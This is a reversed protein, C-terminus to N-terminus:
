ACIIFLYPSLPDGQRIGRSPIIPGVIQNGHTINYSVTSVCVLILHVWWDNYGMKKLMVELFGWEIRDYAKSMDLKIAMHGGKGRRKRKLYHMVEYSVMVNDSILRGTMFTSQNESIVSELTKKLRNAVVKTIIKMLVNCLSISRLDNILVPCKEKPILVVNINNLTSNLMGTSFFEQVLRIVDEGVIKWHKQYFSPTMGDPGPAKDPNMQFLSAKVEEAAIPRILEENQLATITHPICDVVEQWEPGSAAFLNNFYDSILGPLGHEWDLWNDNVDQLKQFHNNRRRGSAM